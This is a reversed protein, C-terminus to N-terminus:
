DRHRRGLLVGTLGVLLLLVGVAAIIAPALQGLNPTLDTTQRVVVFAAVLISLLGLLVTGPRPGTRVTVLAPTPVPPQRAQPASSPPAAPQGWHGADAADPNYADDPVPAAPEVRFPMTPDSPPALNM